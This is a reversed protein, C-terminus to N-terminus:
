QSTRPRTEVLGNAPGAHHGQAEAIEMLWLIHPRAEEFCGMDHFEYLMGQLRRLMDGNPRDKATERMRKV